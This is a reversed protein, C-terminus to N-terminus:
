EMFEFLYKEEYKVDFEKLFEAYELRFTKKEHHQKQNLIYNIVYHMRDASYSFAGYGEQWRFKGRIWDKENVFHSSGAKIDKVLDSLNINPKFGILIHVHDPMCFIALM